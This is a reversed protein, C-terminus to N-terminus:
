AKRKRMRMAVTAILVIIIAALLPLVITFSGSSVFQEFTGTNPVGVSQTQGSCTGYDGAGYASDSSNVCNYSEM